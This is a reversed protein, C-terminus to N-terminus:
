WRNAVNAFIQTKKTIDNTWCFSLLNEFEQQYRKTEIFFINKWLEQTMYHVSNLDLSFVHFIWTKRTDVAPDHSLLTTNPKSIFFLNNQPKTDPDNTKYLVSTHSLSSISEPWYTLLSLLGARQRPTDIVRDVQPGKCGPTTQGSRSHCGHDNRDSMREDEEVRKKIDEGVRYHLIIGHKIINNLRIQDKLLWFFFINSFVGHAHIYVMEVYNYM